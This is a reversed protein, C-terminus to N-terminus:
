SGPWIMAAGPAESLDAGAGQVVLRLLNKQGGDLKIAETM